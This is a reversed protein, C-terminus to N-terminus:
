RYWESIQCTLNNAFQLIVKWVLGNINEENKFLLIFVIWSM